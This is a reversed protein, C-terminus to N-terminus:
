GVGVHVVMGVGAGVAAGVEAGVEVVDVVNAAPLPGTPTVGGGEAAAADDDGPPETAAELVVGVSCADLVTGAATVAALPGVDSGNVPMSMLASNKTPRARTASPRVMSTLRRALTPQCQRHHSVSPGAAVRSLPSSLLGRLGDWTPPDAVSARIWRIRRRAEGRRGGGLSTSGEV